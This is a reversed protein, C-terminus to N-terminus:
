KPFYVIIRMNREFNRPIWSITYNAPDGKEMFNPLAIATETSIIGPEKNL